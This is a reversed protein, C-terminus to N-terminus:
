NTAPADPLVRGLYEKALEHYDDRANAIAARSFSKAPVAFVSAHASASYSIVQLSRIPSEFIPYGVREIDEIIPRMLRENAHKYGNIIWGLVELDPRFRRIREIDLVTNRSGGESVPEPLTPLLIGDAAETAAQIIPGINGGGPADVIIHDFREALARLNERLIAGYEPNPKGDIRGLAVGRAGLLRLQPAEQGFAVPLDGIPIVHDSPPEFLVASSQATRLARAGVYGAWVTLAESPDLDVICVSREFDHVLAAALNVATTSKGVGGKSNTITDIRGLRTRVQSPPAPSPAPAPKRPMLPPTPSAM